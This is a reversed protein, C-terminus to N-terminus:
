IPDHSQDELRLTPTPRVRSSLGIYDALKTRWSPPNQAQRLLAILELLAAPHVAAIYQQNAAALTPEVEGLTVQALYAVATIDPPTGTLRLSPYSEGWAGQTVGAVPYTACWVERDGTGGITWPGPSAARALRELEDVDISM